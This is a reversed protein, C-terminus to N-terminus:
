KKEMQGWIERKDNKVEIGKKRERMLLSYFIEKEKM